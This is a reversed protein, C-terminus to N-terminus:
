TGLEVDEVKAGSESHEGFGGADGEVGDPVSTSNYTVNLPVACRRGREHGPHFRRGHIASRDPVVKGGEVASAPTSDHIQETRPERALRVAEGSLPEPIDVLATVALVPVTGDDV